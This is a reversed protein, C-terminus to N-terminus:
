RSHVGAWFTTFLAIALLWANVRFKETLSPTAVVVRLTCTRTSSTLRGATSLTLLWANLTPWLKLRDTPTPLAEPMEAVSASPAVCVALKAM